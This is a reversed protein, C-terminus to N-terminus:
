LLSKMKNIYVESTNTHHSLAFKKKSVISSLIIEPNDCISVLAQHAEEMSNATIGINNDRIYSMSAIENPGIALMASDSQMCDIIKTSFSLRTKKINETDFSELFLSMDAKNMADCVESYPKCGMYESNVMDNLLAMSSNSPLSNSFLSLKIKNKVSQNNVKKIVEVFEVMAKERGFLLNGAYVIQIPNNTANKGKLKSLDCQKFMPHFENRFIESYEDCLKISGGFLLSSNNISKRLRKRFLIEYLYGLPTKLKRGYMDDGYFMVIKAGTIQACYDMLRHTYINTHGHMYIIDPGFDLLWNRLSNNKWFPLLWILERLFLLSTPRYRRLFDGTASKALPNYGNIDLDKSDSRFQKGVSQGKFWGLIQGETLQYYSNCLANSIPENRCFLNAFEVDKASAFINSITNGTSNTNNWANLTIILVKM